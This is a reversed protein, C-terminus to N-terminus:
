EKKTKLLKIYLFYLMIMIYYDLMLIISILTSNDIYKIGINRTILSLLQFVFILICGIIGLYWTKKIPRTELSIRKFSNLIIPLAFTNIVELINKIIPLIFQSAWVFTLASFVIIIQKWNPKPLLSCALIIFYSSLLYTIFAIIYKLVLHNDIYSCVNIFHKNDCIIEFWNGGVLKIIFCVILMIWCIIIARKVAKM